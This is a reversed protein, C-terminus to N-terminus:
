EHSDDLSHGRLKRWGQKEIPRDAENFPLIHENTGKIRQWEAIADRLKAREDFHENMESRELANKQRRKNSVQRLPSKASRLQYERLQEVDRHVIAAQVHGPIQDFSTKKGMELGKERQKRDPRFKEM